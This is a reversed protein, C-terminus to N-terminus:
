EQASVVQAVARAYTALSTAAILTTTKFSGPLERSTAQGNGIGGASYSISAAPLCGARTIALPIPRNIRINRGRGNPIDGSRRMM